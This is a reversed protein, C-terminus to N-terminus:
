TRDFILIDEINPYNNRNTNYRNWLSAPPEWGHRETCTWGATHAMLITDLDLRLETGLRWWNKTIVIMRTATTALHQYVATMQNRYTLIGNTGAPNGIFQPENHHYTDRFGVVPGRKLDNHANPKTRDTRPYYPPSFCLTDVTWDIDTAPGYTITCGFTRTPELYENMSPDIDNLHMPTRLEHALTGTGAMPDGISGTLYPALATPLGPALKAPHRRATTPWPNPKREVTLDVIHDRLAAPITAIQEDTILHKPVPSVM